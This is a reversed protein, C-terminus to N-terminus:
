VQRGRLRVSVVCRKAHRDQRASERGRVIRPLSAHRATSAAWRSRSSCTPGWARTSICGACCTRWPPQAVRNQHGLGSGNAPLYGSPARWSRHAGRTRRACGKRYERQRRLNRRGGSSSGSPGSMTRTRTSGAFSCPCPFRSTCLSFRPGPAASGRTLAMPTDALHTASALRLNIDAPATVLHNRGEGTYVGAMGRVEIGAQVLAARMLVAAYLTDSPPTRRIVTGHRGLGIKGTVPGPHTRWATVRVGRHPESGEGNCGPQCTASCRLRGCLPSPAPASRRGRGCMYKLPQGAWGCLRATLSLPKTLASAGRIASCAGEVRNVGQRALNEAM